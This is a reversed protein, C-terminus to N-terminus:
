GGVKSGGDDVRPRREGVEFCPETVRLVFDNVRAVFDSVRIVFEDKREVFDRVVLHLAMVVWMSIVCRESADSSSGVFTGAKITV